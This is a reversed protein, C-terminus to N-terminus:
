IHFFKSLRKMCADIDVASNLLPDWLDGVKSFRRAVTKLTFQDPKLGVKVESWKLPVSITAKPRPRVCYPAALTQGRRNQLFDLYILGRRKDPNRVVSTITPLRQNVIGCVAEAFARGVEFDFKGGTPICIHLGSAGSTKCYSEAKVKQLVRRVELAVKVVDRFDNGDPDLDIVVMDPRDLHQRRSLWPNLEICGLNVLYLLAWRDQCLVYNITRGSSGSPVRVTQMRRPLFGTMDKHFFGENRVGDPQRHLSQPRDILHPILLDAVEEYYHILDGKTYGEEPWFVKSLHTLPPKESASSSATAKGGNVRPRLWDRSLGSRYPSHLQKAVLTVPSSVAGLESPKSASEAKRLPSPLLLRSLAEKRKSLPLDRLDKGECFLLDSVVYHAFNKGDRVVEGDLIVNSDIKKLAETIVPYKKEFPLHSRSYLRVTGGEVEALARIGRGFYEFVWGKEGPVAAAFVPEMTRLRRPMESLKAKPSRAKTPKALPPSPKVAKSRGKGPLWIEGKEEAERAIEEMSRGSVVSRDEKLVDRRSAEADHKKILLWAKEPAGKKKLRVLAFEGRLKEGQLIFTIHGKMLGQRLAVESAKRSSATREVYTGRDWLMVTGAGYNGRPIAGEFDGYEVPHDEVQIALRPNSSTLSPGKPVAWSKLTGGLELRFDYHTRSAAHKQVVFRLLRHGSSPKKKADPEPTRDFKRKRRYEKLSM